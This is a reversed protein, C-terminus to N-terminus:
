ATNALPIPDATPSESSKETADHIATEIESDPIEAEGQGAVCTQNRGRAKADYLANDASKMLEQPTLGHEPYTAVGLSITIRPLNREGYRVAVSQIARRLEEAKGTANDLDTDPLLAMFEEGGLRCPLADDSCLRKLTTGVARLVMDGADHGHNDNFKKFHDVDISVLSLARSGDRSGQIHRRLSETFHRRNYLGTLPDIISQQQLQDRLKVNAIALSIQEACMQALKRLKMFGDSGAKRCSMLTMLGVTEGHALIPFCFYPRDDRTKVHACAFDIESSGYAYTRGRRLGWCSEPRIHEHLEGGNWSCAGDLVDRSNSYVYISGACGPLLRSMFTSVMAFLEELSRSSQLWENLESLLRVERALRAQEELLTKEKLAREQERRMQKQAALTVALIGASALVVGLAAFITIAMRIRRVFTARLETIDRYFEVAGLFTGAQMVPVYIEAILRKDAVSRAPGPNDEDRIDAVWKQHYFTRGRAITDFFRPQTTKTGIERPHSSYFITGDPEFMKFRFVDTSEIFLTLRNREDANLRATRFVSIGDPLIRILRQSWQRARQAMDDQLLRDSIPGPMVLIAGISFGIVLTILLLPRLFTKLQNV